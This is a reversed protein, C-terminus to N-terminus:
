IVVVLLRCFGAFWLLDLWRVRVRGLVVWCWLLLCITLDFAVLIVHIWGFGSGFSLVLWCVVWFVSRWLWVVGLGGRRSSCAACGFRLWTGAVAFLRVEM